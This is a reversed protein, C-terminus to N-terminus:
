GTPQLNPFHVGNGTRTTRWYIRDYRRVVHFRARYEDLTRPDRRNRKEVRGHRGDGTELNQLVGCHHDREAHHRIAAKADGELIQVAAAGQVGTYRSYEYATVAPTSRQPLANQIGMGNPGPARVGGTLINRGSATTVPDAAAKIELRLSKTKSFMEANESFFKVFKDGLTLGGGGSAAGEFQSTGKQEVQLLRDALTRQETEYNQFKGDIKDLAKLLVESM